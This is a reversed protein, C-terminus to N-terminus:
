RAPPADIGFCFSDNSNSPSFAYEGARLAGVVSYVYVNGSVQRLSVPIDPPSNVASKTRRAGSKSELPYLKLTSPSIGGPLEVVFNLALDSRLRFSSHAGPMDWYQVSGGNFGAQARHGAAVIQELAVLNGQGDQFYVVGIQQPLAVPPAAPRTAPALLPEPAAAAPIAAAPPAPSDTADGFFVESVDPRAYQELRGDVLFHVTDADVAWWRGTIRTGNRLVLTDAFAASCFLVLLTLTRKIM